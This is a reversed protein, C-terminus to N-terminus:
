LPAAGRVEVDKEELYALVLSLTAEVVAEEVHESTDRPSHYVTDATLSSADPIIGLITTAEIGRRALEGADTGGGLFAMPRPRVWTWGRAHALRQLDRNMAASLPVLGNIDSAQLCLHEMRYLSELNVMRTPLAPDSLEAAHQDCFARAGKLASEEGDFSALVLRTHRLLPEGRQKAAAVARGVEAAIAVSILNDGAGPSVEDRTMLWHGLMFPTWAVTAVVTVTRLTELSTPEVLLLVAAGLAFLDMVLTGMLAFPYFRPFRNMTWFVYAADHHGSVIIQQRPEGPPEIRGLVNAGTASPFLSDFSGRYFVVQTLFSLITLPAVVLALWPRGLWVMLLGLYVCLIAPRVFKLFAKPHFRFTELVATGPDCHEAFRGRIIEAARHCPETGALRRPCAELIQDTLEFIRRLADGHLQPAAPPESM